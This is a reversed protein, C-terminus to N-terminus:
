ARSMDGPTPYQLDDRETNREPSSFRLSVLGAKCKPSGKQVVHARKNTRMMHRPESEVSTFPIRSDQVM